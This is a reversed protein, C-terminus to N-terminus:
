GLNGYIQCTGTYVDGSAGPLWIFSPPSAWAQVQIASFIVDNHMYFGSASTGTSGKAM